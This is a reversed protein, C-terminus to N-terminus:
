PILFHKLIKSEFKEKKERILINDVASINALLYRRFDDVQKHKTNKFNREFAKISNTTEKELKNEILQPFNMNKYENFNQIKETIDDTHKQVFSELKERNKKLNKEFKEKTETKWQFSYLKINQLLIEKYKGQLDTKKFHKTKELFDKQVNEIELDVKKTLLLDFTVENSNLDMNLASKLELLKIDAINKMEKEIDALEMRVYLEYQVIKEARWTSFFNVIKESLIEKYAKRIIESENNRKLENEFSPLVEETLNKHKEELWDKFNTKKFSVDKSISETYQKFKKQLIENIYRKSEEEKVFKVHKLEKLKGERWVSFVSQIQNLLNKKTKKKLNKSKSKSDLDFRNVAEKLAAEHRDNLNLEFNEANFDLNQHLKDFYIKYATESIHSLDKETQIENYTEMASKKWSMFYSKVEEVLIKEFREFDATENYKSCHERFKAIVNQKENQGKADLLNEFSSDEYDLNIDFKIAFDKLLL